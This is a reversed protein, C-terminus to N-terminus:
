IHILSLALAGGLGGIFWWVAPWVADTGRTLGDVIRTMARLPIASALSGLIQLLLAVAIPVSVPRLIRWVPNGANTDGGTPRSASENTATTPEDTVLPM